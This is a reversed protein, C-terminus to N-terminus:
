KRPKAEPRLKEVQFVSSQVGLRQSIRPSIMVNQLHVIFIIVMNFARVLGAAFFGM